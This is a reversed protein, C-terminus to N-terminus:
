QRESMSSIIIISVVRADFSLFSLCASHLLPPPFYFPSIIGEYMRQQPYCLLLQAKLPCDITELLLGLALVLYLLGRGIISCVPGHVLTNALPRGDTGNRM